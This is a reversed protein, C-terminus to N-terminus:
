VNPITDGIGWWRLTHRLHDRIAAVAADVDRAELAAIITLHEDMASVVRDMLFPRVHQIMAIRTRNEAYLRTILDSKIERALADHLTLDTEIAQKSLKATVDNIAADRIKQHSDRLAKTDFSRGSEIMCRAGECDFLARLTLCERTIEPGASMILLGRKPLVDMLGGAEARKVADRVAAIPCGLREVLMPMTLFVGPSLEGERLQRVLEQYAQDTLLEPVLGRAKGLPASKKKM